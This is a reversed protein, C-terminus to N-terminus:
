KIVKFFIDTLQQKEKKNFGFFPRTKNNMAAKKSETARTFFINAERSNAKTTMSGLMEGTFELNPKVGRRKSKRYDAYEKTYPEFEGGKFGVGRATRKEIINVGEQATVSLARRMAKEIDKAQKDLNKAVKDVNTKIKVQM